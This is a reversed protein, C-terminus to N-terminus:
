FSFKPFNKKLYMKVSVIDEKSTLDPVHEELSYAFMSKPNQQIMMKIASPLEKENRISHLPVQELFPAITDYDLRFINMSVGITGDIGKASELEELSPKEIIDSVFGENDKKTVAFQQIRELSFKLANRDYDIMANPYGSELLVQLAKKSYLNDSNCVTFQKGRWEKKVNLACLLADATGLPKTRGAPVPQVAYSITVGHFHNDRSHQSYYEKVADDHEGIVIVVDHYGAERAHFLLYDLFPRKNNGIGIMAKPKREVDQILESNMDQHVASNKMRSSVGGALIILNADTM